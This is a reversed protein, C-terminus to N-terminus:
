APVAKGLKREYKTILREYLKRDVPDTQKDVNARYFELMIQDKNKM